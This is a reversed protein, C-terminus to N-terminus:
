GNEPLSTFYIEQHNEIKYMVNPKFRFWDPDHKLAKQYSWLIAQQLTLGKPAPFNTMATIVSMVTQYTIFSINDIPQQHHTKYFNKAFYKYTNNNKDVYLGEYRYATYPNKNDRTTQLVNKNGWNDSSSIFVLKNPSLYDSVKNMLNLEINYAGSIASLLIIDGPKYGKVLASIDMTSTDDTLFKNATV